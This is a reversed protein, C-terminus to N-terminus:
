SKYCYQVNITLLKKFSIEPYKINYYLQELVINYMFSRLVYKNIM